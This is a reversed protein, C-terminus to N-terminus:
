KLVFGARTIVGLNADGRKHPKKKWRLKDCKMCRHRKETIVEWEHDCDIRGSKKSYCWHERVEHERHKRGSHDERISEASANNPNIIAVRSEDGSYKAFQYSIPDAADEIINHEQNLYNLLFACIGPLHRVGLLYSYLVNEDKTNAKIKYGSGCGKHTFMYWSMFEDWTKCQADNGHLKKMKLFCKRAMADMMGFQSFIVKPGMDKGDETFAEIHFASKHYHVHFNVNSVDSALEEGSLEIVIQQIPMVFIYNADEYNKSEGIWLNMEYPTSAAVRRLINSTTESDIM